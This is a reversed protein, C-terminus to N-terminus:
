ISQYRSVPRAIAADVCADQNAWQCQHRVHGGQQDMTEM